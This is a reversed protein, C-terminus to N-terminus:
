PEPADSLVAPEGIPFDDIRVISKALWVHNAKECAWHKHNHM